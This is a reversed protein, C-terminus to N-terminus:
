PVHAGGAGSLTQCAVSAIAVLPHDHFGGSQRGWFPWATIASWRAHIQAFVNDRVWLDTVAFRCEFARSDHCPLQELVQRQAFGQLIEWLMKRAADSEM